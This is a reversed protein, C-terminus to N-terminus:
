HESTAQILVDFSYSGGEISELATVVLEVPQIEGVGLADMPIESGTGWEITAGSAHDTITTGYMGRTLYRVHHLNDGGHSLDAYDYDQYLIVENDIKVYATEPVCGISITFNVTSSTIPSTIFGNMGNPLWNLGHSIYLNAWDQTVAGFNVEKVQLNSPLNNVSIQPYITSHGENKLFFTVSESEQEPWIEGFDLTVSSDFPITAEGDQWATLADSLVTVSAGNQSNYGFESFAVGGGIGLILTLSIVIALLPIGLFKKSV